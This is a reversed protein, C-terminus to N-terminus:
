ELGNFAVRTLFVPAQQISTLNLAGDIVDQWYISNGEVKDSRALVSESMRYRYSELDPYKDKNPYVSKVFEAKGFRCMDTIYPTPTSKKTLFQPYVNDSGRLAVKEKWPNTNVMVNEKGDFFPMPNNITSLKNITMYTDVQSLKHKGTNRSQVIVTTKNSLAVVNEISPDGGLLPNTNKAVTLVESEYGFLFKEVTSKLTWGGFSCSVIIKNMYSEFAAVDTQYFKNTLWSMDGKHASGVAKVVLAQALINDWHFLKLAEEPKPIALKPEVAQFEVPGAFTEADPYWDKATKSKKLDTGLETPPNLTVV